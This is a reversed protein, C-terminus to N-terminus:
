LDLISPEPNLIFFGTRLDAWVAARGSRSSVDLTLGDETEASITSM